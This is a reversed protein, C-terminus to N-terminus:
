RKRHIFLVLFATLIIVGPNIPASIKSKTQVLTNTTTVIEAPAKTQNEVPIDVPINGISGSIPVMEWYVANAIPDLARSDMRLYLQASQSPKMGEITINGKFYINNLIDRNGVKLTTKIFEKNESKLTLTSKLSTLDIKMGSRYSITEKRYAGRLYTNRAKLVGNVYIESVPFKSVKFVGSNYIRIYKGSTVKSFRLEVIDGKSVYIYSNSTKIRGDQLVKFSIVGNLTWVSRDKRTSLKIVVPVGFDSGSFRHSEWIIGDALGYIRKSNLRIDLKHNKSAKINYFKFKGYFHEGSFVKLGDVKLYTKVFGTNDVILKLTSSVISVKFYSGIYRGLIGKRRKVKKIFISSGKVEGNVKITTLMFNSIYLKGGSIKFYNGDSVNQFVFTIEDGKKVYINGFDTIILGDEDARLTIEGSLQWESKIKDGSVRFYFSHSSSSVSPLSSIVISLVLIVVIVKKM